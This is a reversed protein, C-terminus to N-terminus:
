FQPLFMAITLCFSIIFIFQACPYWCFCICAFGFKILHSGCRVNGFLICFTFNKTKECPKGLSINNGSTIEESVVLVDEAILVAIKEESEVAFAM